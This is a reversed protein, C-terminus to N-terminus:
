NITPHRCTATNHSVTPKITAGATLKGEQGHETVWYTEVDLAQKFMKDTMLEPPFRQVFEKSLGAFIDIPAVDLIETESKQHDADLTLSTAHSLVSSNLLIVGVRITRHPNKLDITNQM